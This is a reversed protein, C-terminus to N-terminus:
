KAQELLDDVKCSLAETLARLLPPVPRSGQTELKAINGRSTGYGAERCADALAKQTLGARERLARLASGSFPLSLTTRAM